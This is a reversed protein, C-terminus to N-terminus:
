KYGKSTVKKNGPFYNGSKKMNGTPSGLRAMACRFGLWALSQKEDLFRRTGPSMWYARDNWSGGKYVRAQDNILSSVGFGYNVWSLSDADAYNENHSKKYNLRSANEEATVPIKVVRGLSDKDVHVYDQDLSDKMFVNGRFPNFDNVDYTSMPRYVDMVWESVNGAMNYLGYDNPLYSYIPATVDANDNLGGAIGMNDGNGRKYNALFAGQWSGHAPDRLSANNWPYIKRDTIMEEGKSPNNGILSLAAFEWEAETPLRYDPLLIGDEIRVKRTGTGNPNLDKLNKRVTGEYQGVL